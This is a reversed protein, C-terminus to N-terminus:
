IQQPSYEQNCNPCKKRIKIYDLSMHMGCNPCNVYRLDAPIWRSDVPDTKTQDHSEFVQNNKSCDEPKCTDSDVPIANNTYLTQFKDMSTQVNEINSLAENVSIRMNDNQKFVDKISSRLERNELKLESISTQLQEVREFLCGFWYLPLGGFLSGIIGAIGYTQVMKGDYAKNGAEELNKYGHGGGNITAYELYQKNENYQSVGSVLCFVSAIIGIAILWGALLKIRGGM